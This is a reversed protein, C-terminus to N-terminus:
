NINEVAIIKITFKLIIYKKCILVNVRIIKRGLCHFEVELVNGLYGLTFSESEGNESMSEDCILQQWGWGVGLFGSSPLFELSVDAGGQKWLEDNGTEGAFLRNGGRSYM